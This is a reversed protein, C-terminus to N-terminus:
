TNRRSRSPSIVAVHGANVLELLLLQAEPALSSIEDAEFTSDDCLREALAISSSFQEGSVFLCAARRDRAWAFRSWPNRMLSAGRQLQKQLEAMSLASERPLIEHAARYRTIFGGFWDRVLESDTALATQLMRQVRRLAESDIEGLATPPSMGADSFRAEEPMAAALTDVLDLMLEAASPARMGISFTLCKGEAVGHHPVGPPLYLMDGSQLLWEHNPIFERLLKLEADDRFAKPADPNTDIQWRRRGLGQLLFVDYQDIHAGVSGGDVAYSVMVDDLRWSPLFSFHPLLAAVDADWKDVDQVLLTWDSAPLAAFDDDDFPGSRVSWRDGARDFQVLRSLAMEECALGALDEPQLPSDLDAFAARILLPRQQWYERLFKEAPMGLPLEPTAVVELEHDDHKTNM